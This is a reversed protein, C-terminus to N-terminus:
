LSNYIVDFDDVTLHLLQKVYQINFVTRINLLPNTEHVNIDFM